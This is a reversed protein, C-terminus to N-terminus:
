NLTFVLLFLDCLNLKVYFVTFVLPSNLKVYFTFVLLFCCGFLCIAVVWNRTNSTLKSHFRQHEGRSFINNVILALMNLGCFRGSGDSLCQLPKFGMQNWTSFIPVKAILSKALKSKNVVHTTRIPEAGGLSCLPSLECTLKRKTLQLGLHTWRWWTLFDAAFDVMTWLRVQGSVESM